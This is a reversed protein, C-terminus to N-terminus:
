WGGAAPGSEPATRMSVEAPDACTSRVPLPMAGFILTVGGERSKPFTLVPSWDVSSTVIWFTPESV